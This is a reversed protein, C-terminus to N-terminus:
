PIRGRGFLYKQKVRQRDRPFVQILVTWYLFFDPYLACSDPLPPPPLPLGQKKALSLILYFFPSFSSSLLDSALIGMERVRPGARLTLPCHFYGSPFLLDSLVDLNTTQKRLCLQSRLFFEMNMEAGKAWPTPIFICWQSFLLQFSVDSFTSLRARRAQM